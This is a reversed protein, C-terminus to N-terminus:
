RINERQEEDHSRNFHQVICIENLTNLAKYYRKSKIFEHSCKHEDKLRDV